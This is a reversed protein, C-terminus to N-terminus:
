QCKKPFVAQGLKVARALLGATAASVMHAHTQADEGHQRGAEHTLSRSPSAM